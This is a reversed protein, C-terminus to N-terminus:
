MSRLQWTIINKELDVDRVIGVQRNDELEIVINNLFIGTQQKSKIKVKSENIYGFVTLLNKVLDQETKTLDSCQIIMENTDQEKRKM